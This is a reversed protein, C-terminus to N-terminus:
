YPCTVVVAAAAAVASSSLSLLLSQNITFFHRVFVVLYKSNWIVSVYKACVPIQNIRGFLVWVHSMYMYTGHCIRDSLALVINELLM